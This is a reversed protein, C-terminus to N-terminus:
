FITKRKPRYIHIIGDQAKSVIATECLMHTQKADITNAMEGGQNIGNLTGMINARNGLALLEIVPNGPKMYGTSIFYGEYSRYPRGEPTIDGARWDADFFPDLMPRISVGAFNYIDFSNYAVREGKENKEYYANDSNINLRRMAEQFELYAGQGCLYLIEINGSINTYHKLKLLITNLFSTTMKDYPFSYSGDGQYFLGSGSLVEEGTELRMQVQNNDSMTSQGYKLYNEKDQAMLQIMNMNAHSEWVMSGKATKFWQVNNSDLQSATGSITWKRRMIVTHTRATKHFTYKEQGDKSIEEYMNYMVSCRKGAKLLDPNVYSDPNDTVLKAKARFVGPSIEKPKDNTHFYLKTSNDDLEVVERPLTWAINMYLTIESGAKGPTGDKEVPYADCEADRKFTVLRETPSELPWQIERSGVTRHIGRTSMLSGYGTPDKHEVGFYKKNFLYDTLPTNKTRFVSGLSELIVPSNVAFKRLHNATTTEGAFHPPQHPTIFTSM